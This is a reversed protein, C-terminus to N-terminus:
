LLTGRTCLRLPWELYLTVIIPLKYPHHYRNVRSMFLNLNYQDPFRGRSFRNWLATTRSYFRNSYFKSRASPVCLSHLYNTVIYTAQCTRAMFTLGPPVLLHLEDSCKGHYCHCLLSLSAVNRSHTLPQLTQFLTRCTLLTPSSVILLSSLPLNPLTAYLTCM